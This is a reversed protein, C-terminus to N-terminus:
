VEKADEMEKYNVVNIVVDRDKLKINRIDKLQAIEAASITQDSVKSCIMVDIADALEEDTMRKANSAKVKVDEERQAKFAVEM